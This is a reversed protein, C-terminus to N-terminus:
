PARWVKGESNRVIIVGDLTGKSYDKRYGVAALGRRGPADFVLAWNEEEPTPPMDSGIFGLRVRHACKEDSLGLFPREGL